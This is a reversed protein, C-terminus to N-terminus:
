RRTDVHTSDRKKGPNGKRPSFWMKEIAGPILSDYRPLQEPTCIKRLERFNRFTQLDIAKQTEGIKEADRLVLSDNTAPNNLNKFFTIKALRMNEFLVHMKQMNERRMLKASDLQAKSFGVKEELVTNVINSGRVRENNNKEPKKMNVFSVLMALNAILLVLIVFILVKTKSLNRM